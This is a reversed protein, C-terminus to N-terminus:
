RSYLKVVATVLINLLRPSKRWVALALKQKSTMGRPIEKISGVIKEAKKHLSDGNPITHTLFRIACVQLYALAEDEPGGYAILGKYRDMAALLRDRQNKETFVHSLSAKRDMYYYLRWNIRAIRKAEHTVKYTTFIDEFVRGEPYRVSAFLDKKYLRRWAANGGTRIATSYDIIGLPVNQDRPINRNHDYANDFIVLDADYQLATEYPIRCYEKHVWDDSDVFMVWDAETEDIGRNRAASLGHNETHICRFRPWEASIYEDAIAGSEDTSGDDICIVEIQKLTQRKLSNLCRRLYPKVNYVPVIVSIMPKENM